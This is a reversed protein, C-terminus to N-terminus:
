DQVCNLIQAYHVLSYSFFLFIQIYRRVSVTRSNVCSKFLNGTYMFGLYIYEGRSVERGEEM